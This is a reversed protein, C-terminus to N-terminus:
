HIYGNKQVVSSGALWGTSFAAQLNYGGTDAHINLLEGCFYLGHIIRSQLTKPDVDKLCVGGGTVIAESIPRHATIQLRFDKLWVGLRRREAANIQHAPKDYQIKVTELCVPILARPMMGKLLNQIHQKGNANLDRLLRADLKHMDLAPKLDISIEVPLGANLAQVIRHSLKLIAPGSVGFHTFLMEGFAETQKKGKFLVSVNINRLSLGQLQLATNEATELPILAPQIPIITHGASKALEYGDGTSGTEPYSAGGSALIVADAHFAKNQAPTEVGYIKQEHILLRKVPHNTKIQVGNKKNWRILADVIDPARNSIPFVRGGREIETEIGLNQFFNILEKSFFRSFAQYLFKGNSGFHEIFEHIPAINTLNCRGKGTIALKLGPKRMKELLTVYAGSNAAWGAAMLGSAGGGIVLVNTKM